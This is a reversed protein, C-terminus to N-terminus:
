RIVVYYELNAAEVMDIQFSHCNQGYEFRWEWSGSYANAFQEIADKITKDSRCDKIIHQYVENATSDGHHPDRDIPDGRKKAKGGFYQANLEGDVGGFTDGIQRRNPAVNDYEWRRANNFALAARYRAQAAMHQVRQVVSPNAPLAAPPTPPTPPSPPPDRYGVPLKPWWGYSSTGDIETWWHGFQDRGDLDIHKRHLEIKVVRRWVQLLLALDTTKGCEITATGVTESTAEHPITVKPYHTVFTVYDFFKKEVEVDVSGPELGTWLVDGAPGTTGKRGDGKVDVGEVPNGDCTNEVIVRLNGKAKCEAIPSSSLSSSKGM